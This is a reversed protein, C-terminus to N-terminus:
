KGKKYYTAKGEVKTGTKGQEYFALLTVENKDNLTITLAREEGELMIQENDKLKIGMVLYEKRNIETLQPKQSHVKVNKM